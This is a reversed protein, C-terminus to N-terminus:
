LLIDGLRLSLSSRWDAERLLKLTPRNLKNDFGGVTTSGQSSGLGPAVAAAVPGLRGRVEAADEDDEEADADADAGVALVGTLESNGRIWTTVGVM